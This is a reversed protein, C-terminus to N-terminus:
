VARVLRSPRNRGVPAELPEVLDADIEMSAGQGLIGVQLVLRTTDDVRVVVGELGQFPGASVRCRTGVVASLYPALVAKGELARHVASLEATLGQQDSIEIVRCLRGTTLASYRTMEDGRFFVYSPFLPVWSTRKKGGSVSLRDILPLFYAIHKAHLDWAFIKEFRAKTHAVWWRPNSAAFVGTDPYVIPPNDSLKLLV